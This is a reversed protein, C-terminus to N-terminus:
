RCEGGGLAIHLHVEKITKNRSEPKAYFRYQHGPKLMIDAQVKVLMAGSGQKEEAPAIREGDRLVALRLSGFRDGIANATATVSAKTLQQVSVWARVVRDDDRLNGPEINSRLICQGSPAGGNTVNTEQADAHGGQVSALIIGAVMALELAKNMANGQEKSNEPAPTAPQGGGNGAVLRAVGGALDVRPVFGTARMRATDYRVRGSFRQSEDRSPINQAFRRLAQWFRPSRGVLRVMVADAARFIRRGIIALRYGGREPRLGPLGLGGQLAAFYHNWSPADPGNVNYVALDRPVPRALLHAVFGALDDVHVLNAVGDGRAGLAHWGGSRMRDVYLDTWQTSGRGWILTPRLITVPLGGCAAQACLREATRKAAGYDGQPADTPAAEDVVGAAKGYVAVSSLHVVHIGRAKAANLVHHTGDVTVRADGPPGVACHVVAQVGVMAAMLSAPDLVDCLCVQAAGAVVGGGRTGARVRHGADALARVVARGVFGGAGTVLVAMPTAMATAIATATPAVDAEGALHDALRLALALTTLTPNAQSSTPLVSGSAIYLNDTGFVRCDADVVGDAPSAAMRTTGSHHGGYAGAKMVAAELGADDYTLHGTGTRELERAIRQYSKRITAFDLPTVRWDARLRRMGYADRATSLTLRSDPNPAQEAHFELPYRGNRAYLAISPMRRSALYRQVGWGTAFRYLALPDRLINGVHRAMVPWSRDGERMSRSYEYKVAFAALFILSLVANRHGPDNADPIHLRATFNMVKLERQAAETLAIRRRLYIGDADREYDFGISRPPGNLTVEGFTAALHCMYGRGLWGGANGIGDPLVDDSAMLLRTTELGGMAVVYTGARVRRLGNGCRVELHDVHDGGANLRVATVAAGSMVRVGCRALRDGYRAWFDTPRSFREVTTHLSDGDLGPVIPGSPRYDFAGGEAARLAAPYYPALDAAGIPWGSHPVWDRQAFDIPDYPIVRGGWIRSTGGLARVRYFDLPWHVASDAVEGAYFAQAADTQEAGGAEILLIRRGQGALRDALTLGAPGAGVICIDATEEVVESM